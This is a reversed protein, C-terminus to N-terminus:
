GRGEVWQSMGIVREVGARGSAGTLPELVEALEERRAPTWTSARTAFEVLALQENADLAIPPAVVEGTSAKSAIRAREQHVVLTGAARDGLRQFDRSALCSVIGAGFPPPLFDVALLFNRIISAGWGVPTGDAHVVRLNMVRKGPTAGRGLVEFLVGYWWEGAFLVLLFLAQGVERFALNLGIACVTYGLMRVLADLGWALARPLPGAVRLAVDAGEPTAAHRATDLRAPPAPGRPAPRTHAAAPIVALPPGPPTPRAACHLRDRERGSPRSPLNGAAM